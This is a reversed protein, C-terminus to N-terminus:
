EKSKDYNKMSKNNTEPYRHIAYFIGDRIGNEIM